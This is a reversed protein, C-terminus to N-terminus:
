TRRVRLVCGGSFRFLVVVEAVDDVGTRHSYAEESTRFRDKRRQDRLLIEVERRM